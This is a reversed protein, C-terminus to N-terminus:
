NELGADGSIDKLSVDGAVNELEVRRVGAVVADGTVNTAKISADEPMMLKLDSDCDLITLTNGEQQMGAVSGDTEVGIAQEKWVHVNLDGQVQTLVVRPAVDVSFTQQTMFDEM